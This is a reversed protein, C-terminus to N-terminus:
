KKGQSKEQSTEEMKLLMPIEHIHGVIIVGIAMGLSNAVMMPPIATKVIELAIDFPRVMLLNIAGHLAEVFLALLM